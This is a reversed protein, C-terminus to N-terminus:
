GSFATVRSMDVVAAVLVSSVLVVGPYMVCWFLVVLRPSIVKEVCNSPTSRSVALVAAVPLSLTRGDCSCLVFVVVAVKM